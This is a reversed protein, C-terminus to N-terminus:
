YGFATCVSTATKSPDAVSTATLAVTGIHAGGQARKAHVAATARDGFKATVLENPLKVQWGKSSTSASLRYTDTDFPAAVGNAQGTNVVPFQCTALGGFAYAPLSPWLAVGRAQDGAGDLSGVTVTYSLVGQRDRQVDSVLFRLRNAEDTYQYTAAAETGAKFAADNLQRQDGITVKVPTGDPKTYDTIGIDKPNADVIWEFPANDENKTKAILVGSDPAFSDSGMRDVVEVTYNHYGGGDCLPDTKRDCKPSKDGGPLKINIGAYAGPKPEAARATIRASVPGSDALQDRDLQLVDEPAVIKLKLKNRLMHQAGMSGGQTAPIKWRTHTGGPGNFSGRSLMEWPGTYSRSAPTGFPNNYNDGIGLIHSFEHAFVGQGSSEAQTSSGTRANPWISAASKWSTWPVYRTDAWNHQGAVGPGFEAPVNEKAGFKMEGFEQWTSSEDQGASLYFIFDYKKTEPEGVDAKWAAGADARLDRECNGGPPCADQFDMGYEFSKGPMRYPGFATLEVGLRGGSDEMWYENITHGRNLAQPKNLFDQYYKAVQERPINSAETTPNGFVTSHPPQTVAFNEDPYDALVVAGKFTRETAKLDPNAWDTGPVKRYDDWTMDDQNEWRSSDIPGPWDRGAAQAVATTSM